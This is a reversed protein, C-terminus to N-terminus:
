VAPPRRASCMGVHRRQDKAAGVVPMFRARMPESIVRSLAVALGVLTFAHRCSAPPPQRTAEEYWRALRPCAVKRRQHGSAMVMTCSIRTEMTTAVSTTSLPLIV